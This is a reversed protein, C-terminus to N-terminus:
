PSDSGDILKQLEKHLADRQQARIDLLSDHLKDLTTDIGSRLREHLTQMHELLAANQADALNLVRELVILDAPPAAPQRASDSARYLCYAIWQSLRHLQFLLLKSPRRNHTRYHHQLIHVTINLYKADLVVLTSELAAAPWTTGCEPCVELGNYALKTMHSSEYSDDPNIVAGCNHTIVDTHPDDTSPVFAMNPHRLKAKLLEHDIPYVFFKHDYPDKAALYEPDPLRPM